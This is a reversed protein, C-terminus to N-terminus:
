DRHNRLAECAAPSNKQKILDGWFSWLRKRNAGNQEDVKSKTNVSQIAVLTPAAAKFLLGGKTWPLCPELVVPKNAQQKDPKAAITASSFIGPQVRNGKKRSRSVHLLFSYIFHYRSVSLFHEMWLHPMTSTLTLHYKVNLRRCVPPSQVSILVPSM